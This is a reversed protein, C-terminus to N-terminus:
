NVIYPEFGDDDIETGIVALLVKDLMKQDKPKVTKQLKELYEITKQKEEKSEFMVHQIM